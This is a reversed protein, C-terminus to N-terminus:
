FSSLRNKAACQPTPSLAGSGTPAGRPHHRQAVDAPERGEATGQTMCHAVRTHALGHASSALAAAPRAPEPGGRGGHKDHKGPSAAEPLVKHDTRVPSAPHIGWPAPSLVGPQWGCGGMGGGGSGEVGSRGQVTVRRAPRVRLSSREGSRLDRSPFMLGSLQAPGEPGGVQGAAGQAAGDQKEVHQAGVPLVGAGRGARRRSPCGSRM